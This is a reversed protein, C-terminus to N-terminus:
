RVQRHEEPDDGGMALSHMSDILPNFLFLLCLIVYDDFHLERNGAKDRECGVRHLHALLKRIRRLKKFGTLQEITIKDEGSNEAVPAIAV